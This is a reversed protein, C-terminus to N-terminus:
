KRAYMKQVVYIDEYRINGLYSFPDQKVDEVLSKPLDLKEAVESSTAPAEPSIPQTVIKAPKEELGEEVEAASMPPTPSPLADAGAQAPVETSPGEIPSPTTTDFLGLDDSPVIAEVPLPASSPSPSLSPSPSPATVEDPTQAPTQSWASSFGIFTSLGVCLIRLHLGVPTVM